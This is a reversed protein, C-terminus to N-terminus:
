RAPPTSGRAAPSPRHEVARHRHGQRFSPVAVTRDIAADLTVTLIVERAGKAKANTRRADSAERGTHARSPGEAEAKAAFGAPRPPSAGRGSLKRPASLAGDARDNGGAGGGRRLPLRARPERSPTRCLIVCAGGPILILPKVRTAYGTRLSGRCRGRGRLRHAALDEVRGDVTVCSEGSRKARRRRSGSIEDPADIKIKGGSAAGFRRRPDPTQRRARSARRPLRLSPDALKEGRTRGSPEHDLPRVRPTKLSETDRASESSTGSYPRSPPDRRPAAAAVLVSGAELTHGSHAKIVLDPAELMLTNGTTIKRRCTVAAPPM